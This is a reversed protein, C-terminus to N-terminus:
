YQSKISEEVYKKFNNLISQWGAQQMEVPNTEEAEFTEIVTTINGEPIFTIQVKRGDGITYEISQNKEVKNYVGGFDFGMSGDRAEMRSLFRGGERLDNEAKPTHWDPSANNWKKIHQPDIWINWVTEVSANVESRVTILAKEPIATM